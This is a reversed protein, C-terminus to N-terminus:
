RGYRRVRTNWDLDLGRHYDYADFRRSPYYTAPYDIPFPYAPAGPNYYYLRPSHAYPQYPGWHAGYAQAKQSWSLSASLATLVILLRLM